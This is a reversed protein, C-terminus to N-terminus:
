VFGNYITSPIKLSLILKTFGDSISDISTRFSGDDSAIKPTLPAFPTIMTVVLLPSDPLTETLTLEESPTFFM